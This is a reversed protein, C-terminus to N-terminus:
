VEQGRSVVMSHAHWHGSPELHEWLDAHMCGLVIELLCTGSDLSKLASKLGLFETAASFKNYSKSDILCMVVLSIFWFSVGLSPRDM